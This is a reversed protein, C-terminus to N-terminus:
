LIEAEMGVFGLALGSVIFVQVCVSLFFSSSAGTSSLIELWLSPSLVGASVCSVLSLLSAAILV